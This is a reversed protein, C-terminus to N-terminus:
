ARSPTRPQQNKRLGGGCNIRPSSRCPGAPNAATEGTRWRRCVKETDTLPRSCPSPSTTSASSSPCIRKQSLPARGRRASASLDDRERDGAGGAASRRVDVADIRHQHRAAAPREPRMREFEPAFHQRRHTRQRLVCGCRCNPANCSRILAAPLFSSSNPQACQPAGIGGSCM